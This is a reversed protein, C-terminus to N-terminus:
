YDLEIRQQLRRAVRLAENLVRRDIDNLADVDLLNPSHLAHENAIQARLRLMQLYDFGSIWAQAEGAPAKLALAVAEFRERTGTHPVGCALAYLRAADVYPTVAHFKLNLMERGDVRQTEIRNLWNLPV